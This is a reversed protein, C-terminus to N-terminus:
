PHGPLPRGAIWGAHLRDMDELRILLTRDIPTGTASLIGSVTFPHDDHGVANLAGDGHALTLTNGPTYGLDAAVKSGLVVHMPQDWAGGASFTLDRAGSARVHHFFDETTGIVPFGRHSDGKAIPVAWAVGPQSAITQASTDSFTGTPSGTHFVSYLLLPLAGGRAGVILDVGSVATTFHQRLDQRIREMGILMLTALAICVVCLSVTFRRNWASRAALHLLWRNM